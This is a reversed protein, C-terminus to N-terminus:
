ADGRERLRTAHVFTWAPLSNKMRDVTPANPVNGSRYWGCPAGALKRQLQRRSAGRRRCLRGHFHANEPHVTDERQVQQAHYASGAAAIASVQQYGHRAEPAGAQPPAGTCHSAFGDARSASVRVDHTPPYVNPRLHKGQDLLAIQPAKRWQLYRPPSGPALLIQRGNCRAAKQSCRGDETGTATLGEYRVLQESSPRCNPIGATAPSM